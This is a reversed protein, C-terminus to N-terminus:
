AAIQKRQAVKRLAAELGAVFRKTNGLTARWRELGIRARFSTHAAPDHALQIAKAIYSERTDVIGEPAGIATLLSAAMRSAFSEGRLTVLPLGMRLADSAITGANYPFTDLFLDAAGLRALYVDPAVRESFILRAPDLGARAAAARLNESATGNDSPLWLWAGPVAHLIDCWATVMGETMKYSNSFCCFVFGQEPLGAEARTLSPPTPRASDNAQFVFPLHLPAPQYAAGDPVTETDCIFYDLEPLPVPGIYGLYTIQVPAPRWRLLDLRAGLTLGNLDILVDIEDARIRQAAAEDSMTNIPVFHDFGAIVRARIASNDDRSSCYGFIEFSNRDHLEFTEAVLYSMAHSCFDSSLYGIRLRRHSYGTAPSLRQRTNPLKRAIWDAAAETQAAVRDTLALTALPGAHRALTADALGSSGAAFIPWRCLKQRLHVWHQIVDPQAPDTRLSAHLTREADDLAGSNELLRGCQNLLAVRAADPQLASRWAALAADSDGLQEQTLGLNLAAAALDPRLHLANRYCAIANVRDGVAGFSAGLNTWAVPLMALDAPHAAIWAQYAAIRAQPSATELTGLLSLFDMSGDAVGCGGDGRALM